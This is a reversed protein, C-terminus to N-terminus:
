ANSGADIVQMEENGAQIKKMGVEHFRRSDM